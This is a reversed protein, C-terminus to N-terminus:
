LPPLEELAKQAATADVGAVRLVVPDPADAVVLGATL